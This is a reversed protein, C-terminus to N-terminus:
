RGAQPSKIRTLGPRGPSLSMPWTRRATENAYPRYKQLCGTRGAAPTEYRPRRSRNREDKVATGTPPAAEGTSKAPRGCSRCCRRRRRRALGATSPATLRRGGAAADRRSNWHSRDAALVCVRRPVHGLVGRPGSRVSLRPPCPPRESNPKYATLGAAFHRQRRSSAARHATSPDLRSESRACLPRSLTEGFNPQGWRAARSLRSRRAQGVSSLPGRCPGDVRRSPAPM